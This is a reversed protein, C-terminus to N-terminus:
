FDMFKAFSDQVKKAKTETVHTYINMATQMDSHGLKAQVDKLSAGSEFMLSAHTHRMQHITIRYFDPHHVYFNYDMLNNLHSLPIFNGTESTFLPLQDNVISSLGRQMFIINQQKIWSNLIHLTNQDLGVTRISSPTKTRQLIYEGKIQSLTKTIKLQGDQGIDSRLLAQLEGKRMGTFLMLQFMTVDRQNFENKAISLFEAVEDKAWYKRKNIQLDADYLFSEKRKPVEVYKM